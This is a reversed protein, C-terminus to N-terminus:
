SSRFEHKAGRRRNRDQRHSSGLEQRANEPPAFRALLVVFAQVCPITGGLPIPHTTLFLCGRVPLLNSGPVRSIDTWHQEQLQRAQMASKLSSLQRYITIV